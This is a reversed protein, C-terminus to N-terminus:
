RDKKGEGKSKSQQQETQDEKMAVVVYSILVVNAMVAALAGALTSNGLFPSLSFPLTLSSYRLTPPAARSLRNCCDLARGHVFMHPPPDVTGKFILDVSAFYSGIPLVIMALTFGLLKLIVDTPVAPAINSKETSSSVGPQSNSATSPDDQDLFTKETSIIRQGAM